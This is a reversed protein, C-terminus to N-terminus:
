KRPAPPEPGSNGAQIAPAGQSSVPAAAVATADLKRHRRATMRLQIIRATGPIVVLLIGLVAALLLAVGLPLHGHAGLYSIQVKTGNQLIFILLLLLVLAFLASAIWVGGIRTRKVQHQPLVGAAPQDQRGAVAAPPPNGRTGEAGDASTSSM